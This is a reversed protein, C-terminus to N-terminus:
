SAKGLRLSMSKQRQEEPDLHPNAVVITRGALDHLGRGSDSTLMVLVSIATIPWLVPVYLLLGVVLARACSRGLAPPEGTRLDRVVLGAQRHGATAGWRAVRFTEDIVFLVVWLISTIIIISLKTVPLGAAGALVIIAVVLVPADGLRRARARRREELTAVRGLPAMRPTIEADAYGPLSATTIPVHADRHVVITHGLRDQFGRRLPSMLTSVLGIIWGVIIFTSGVAVGFSRGFAARASPKGDSDLQAVRLGLMLKGPTGGAAATWLTEYATILAVIAFLAAPLRREPALAIVIVALVIEVLADIM